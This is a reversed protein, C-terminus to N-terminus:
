SLILCGFAACLYFSVGCLFVFISLLGWQWKRQRNPDDLFRRLGIVSFGACIVGATVLILIQLGLLAHSTRRFTLKYCGIDNDSEGEESRAKQYPSDNFGSLSGISGPMRYAYCTLAYAKSPFSTLLLQAGIYSNRLGADTFIFRSDGYGYSVASLGGSVVNSPVQIPVPGVKSRQQWFIKRVRVVSSTGLYAIGCDDWSSVSTKEELYVWCFKLFNFCSLDGQENVPMQIVPIREALASLSREAIVHNWSFAEANDDSPMLM